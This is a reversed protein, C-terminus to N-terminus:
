EALFKYALWVMGATGTVLADEDIVFDSSHLGGTKANKESKAGFRFFCSPYKQAFFSFDESTMRIDLERINEKGVLELAFNRAKQTVETNNTVCPYGDPIEIEANCGYAVCTETIIDKIKNLAVKRWNEDMTRFTGSLQVEHPIINQAGDAILKGFTLVMPTLPNCLRSKIQQLSVLTQAAALVSDNCLHPLAGHGGKGNIKVHIEDASAMITGERFGITGTPYDVSIHQALILEPEIENFIGDELMLRAGGPAKEEGPQFIFLVTGQLEQQIYKLTKAAGLLCATHADHGCAHMIGNYVSKWQLENQETVPLADIDARLAIIKKTPNKGELKALIGNGGIGSRFPIDLEVLKKRIFAATNFEHFSLEPYTHLYRYIEIVYDTNTAILKQFKYNIM